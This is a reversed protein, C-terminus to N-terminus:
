SPHKPRPKQVRLLAKEDGHGAGTIRQALQIELHLFQNFVSRQYDSFAEGDVFGRKRYLALAPEFASGSGTELSLRKLGRVKAESIIHELLLAGIGKRLWDPHTRMSKVEGAGEGLEKLAGIGVIQDGRWVSWVTVAPDKLGSLDLAFVSGPPSNAHMGALHLALLARTKDGSLDDQRITFMGDGTNRFLEEKGPL